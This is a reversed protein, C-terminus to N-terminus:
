PNSGSDSVLTVDVGLEQLRPVDVTEADTGLTNSDLIVFDDIGLGGNEANTVLASISNVQNDFLSVRQLSLLGSLPTIDTIENTDLNLYELHALKALPTIDSIRNTDLDVWRLNECAEIGALSRIGLGRGDLQQLELAGTKTLPGFPSGVAVKVAHELNPDTFTVIEDLPCGVFAASAALVAVGVCAFRIRSTRM